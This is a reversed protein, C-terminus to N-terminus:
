KVGVVLLRISIEKRAPNAHDTSLLVKFRVYRQSRAHPAFLTSEVFKYIRPWNLQNSHMQVCHDISQTESRMYKATM